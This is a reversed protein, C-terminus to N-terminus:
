EKLKRFTGHSTTFTPRHDNMMDFQSAYMNHNITEGYVYILSDTPNLEANFVFYSMGDDDDVVLDEDVLNFRRIDDPSSFRTLATQMLQQPWGPLLTINQNSSYYKAVSHIKNYICLFSSTVLTDVWGRISILQQYTPGDLHLTYQHGVMPKYYKLIPPRMEQYHLVILSLPRANWLRIPIATCEVM